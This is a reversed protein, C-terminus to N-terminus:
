SKMVEQKELVEVVVAVVAASAKEEQSITTVIPHDSPSSLVSTVARTGKLEISKAKLSILKKRSGISREGHILLM